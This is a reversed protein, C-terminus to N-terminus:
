PFPTQADKLPIGPKNWPATMSLIHTCNPSTCHLTSYRPAACRPTSNGGPLEAVFQGLKALKLAKWITADDRVGFPDLNM